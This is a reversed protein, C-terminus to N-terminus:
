PILIVHHSDQFLADRMLEMASFIVDQKVFIEMALIALFHQVIPLMSCTVHYIRMIHKTVVGNMIVAEDLQRERSLGSVGIVHVLKTKEGGLLVTLVAVIPLM